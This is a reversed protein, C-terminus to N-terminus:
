GSVHIRQRLVASPLARMHLFRLVTEIFSQVIKGIHELNPSKMDPRMLEAARQSVSQCKVITTLMLSYTSCLMSDLSDPIIDFSIQISFM